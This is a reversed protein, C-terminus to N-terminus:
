DEPVDDRDLEGLGAADALDHYSVGIPRRRGGGRGGTGMAPADALAAAGIASRGFRDRITDVASYREHPNGANFFLTDVAQNGKLDTIRFADGANVNGIWYDGAAVTETWAAQDMALTSEKLM